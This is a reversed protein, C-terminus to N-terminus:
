WKHTAPGRPNCAAHVLVLNSRADNSPDGNVHHLEGTGHAIRRGCRACRGRQERALRARRRKTTHGDMRVPNRQPWHAHRKCRGRHVPVGVCGPEACTGPARTLAVGAM